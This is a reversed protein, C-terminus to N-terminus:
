SKPVRWVGAAHLIRRAAFGIPWRLKTEFIDRIVMILLGHIPVGFKRFLKILQRTYAVPAENAAFHMMCPQFRKGTDRWIFECEGSSADMRISGPRASFYRSFFNGIPAPPLDMMTMVIALVDEDAYRIDGAIERYNSTVERAQDFVATCGPKTFLAHGAGDISVMYQRGLKRLMSSRDLHFCSLGGTEHSGVAMYSSQGWEEAYPKVPRFLLVDSDFFFTKEFPSYEDLYVKHVFGRLGQKEEIVHDFYPSVLPAVEPSCAVALQVGPNSVRASLALGIAKLYDGPTALTLIGFQLNSAATHPETDELM